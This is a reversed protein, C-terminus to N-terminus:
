KESRYDFRIFVVVAAIVLMGFAAVAISILRTKMTVTPTAEEAEKLITTRYNYSDDFASAIVNSTNVVVANAFNKAKEKDVSTVKVEFIGRPSEKVEYSPIDNVKITEDVNALLRESSFLEILQSYPSSAAGNDVHSNYVSFKATATYQVKRTFAYISGLAGGIVFFIALFIWAKKLEQLYNRFTFKTKAM